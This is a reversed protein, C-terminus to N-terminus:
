IETHPPLRRQSWRKNQESRIKKTHDRKILACFLLQETDASVIEALTKHNSERIKRIKAHFVCNLLLFFLFLVVFDYLLSEIKQVFSWEKKFEKM